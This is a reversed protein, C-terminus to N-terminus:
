HGAGLYRCVLEELVDAMIFGSRSAQADVNAAQMSGFAAKEAVAM